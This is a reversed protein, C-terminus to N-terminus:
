PGPWANAEKEALWLVPALAKLLHPPMPQAWPDASTIRYSGKSEKADKRYSWSWGSSAKGDNVLILGLSGNDANDFGDELFFGGL